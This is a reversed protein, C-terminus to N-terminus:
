KKFKQLAHHTKIIHEIAKVMKCNSLKEMSDRIYADNNKYEAEFNEYDRQYINVLNSYYLEYNEIIKTYNKKQQCYKVVCDNVQDFTQLIYNYEEDSQQIAKNQDHSSSVPQQDEPKLTTAAANM